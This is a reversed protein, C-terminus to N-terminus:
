FSTTTNKMYTEFSTIIDELKLKVQDETLGYNKLQKSEIIDFSEPSVNIKAANDKLNVTIVAFVDEQPGIYSSALGTGQSGVGGLYFKGVVIGSEKDTFQIVSKADKFSEVMWRNTRVYLEDKPGELDIVEEKAPVAINTTTAQYGGCSALCSLVVILLLKKM